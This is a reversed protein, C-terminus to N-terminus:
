EGRMKRGADWLASIVGHLTKVEAETLRARQFLNRLNRVMTPRKEPPRMFGSIDLREELREFFNILDAKPAPLAGGDRREPPAETCLQYWEYGLILVAQALNLSAFAPNLPVEVVADALAIDDNLLGTREPGFLLGVREGTVLADRMAAAAARPTLVEKVMGRPRASAAYVLTLDAIADATSGYLRAAAVVRDAGSAANIAADNPWGDRPRVLRLEALECNLMARAVMGINEGLQPAVLIVVPGPPSIGRTKSKNTGAM